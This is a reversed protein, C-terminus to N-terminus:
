RGRGAARGAGHASRGALEHDDPRALRVAGQESTEAQDLGASVAASDLPAVVLGGVGQNLQNNIDTIQQASDSNSNVTKLANVGEAKAMKPVYDNYSQWFPSTLLPLIVGITATITVGPIVASSADAVTGSITGNSSQSFLPTAVVFLALAMIAARFHLTRMDKRVMAWRAM